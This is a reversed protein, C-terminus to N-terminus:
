ILFYKLDMVKGNLTPLDQYIRPIAPNGTKHRAYNIFKDRFNMGQTMLRFAELFSQLVLITNILEIQEESKGELFTNIDNHKDFVKEDGYLERYKSISNALNELMARYGILVHDFNVPFMVGVEDRKIGFEDIIAKNVVKVENMEENNM